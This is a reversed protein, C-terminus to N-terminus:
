GKRTTHEVTQSLDHWAYTYITGDYNFWYTHSGWGGNYRIPGLPHHPSTRERSNTSDGNLSLHKDAYGYKQSWTDLVNLDMTMFIEHLEDKMEKTIGLNLYGNM